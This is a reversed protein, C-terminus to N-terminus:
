IESDWVVTINGSYKGQESLMQLVHQRQIEFHLTSPKNDVYHTSKFLLGTSARLPERSVSSDDDNGIGNPMSVLVDVPVSHGSSTNSIACTDGVLRDCALQMKFRSSASIMFPQDRFLKEPTRGNQMWEQWSGKPTLEVKNGGPPIDVKLTHQVNLLFKITLINDSPLMNDGMDIDQYPGVTYNIEGNYDGSSMGLPNPTKMEYSFDLTRYTFNPIDYLAARSCTAGSVPTTWYIPIGFWNAVFTTAGICTGAGRWLYGGVWLKNLGDSWSSANPVLTHINQPEISTYTGIGTIRVQLEETELTQAHTVILTRWDSNARIMMGQRPDPNNAIIRSSNRFSIPASISIIGKNICTQPVYSCYHSNSPTKNTFTNQHPLAPDPKFEARVNVNAAYVPQLFGLTLVFIALVCTQRYISLPVNNLPTPNYDIVSARSPKNKM